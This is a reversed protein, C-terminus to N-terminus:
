APPPDRALDGAGEKLWELASPYRLQLGLVQRTLSADCRKNRVPGSAEWFHPPPASIVQALAGYFVHRPLPQEDCLLYTGPRVQQEALRIVGQVADDVHILNLWADPNGSIPEGRRLQDLRAILRGPGYLGALRLIVAQKDTRDVPYFERVVQEAELCIQGGETDPECPSSELVIEGRNQGYVSTSSIHILRPVRHQIVELVNRLGEVYVRRKDFPGLRDYGVAYLCVDAAPLQKLSAPEMVDGLVAEIGQEAWDRAHEESRTLASVAHGAQLWERAARVGLYGCGIILVHM